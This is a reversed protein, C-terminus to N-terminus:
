KDGMVIFVLVGLLILALIAGVALGAVVTVTSPGKGKSSPQVAVDRQCRSCVTADQHILEKCHPCTKRNGKSLLAILIGFPGLLVGLIFGGCGEGKKAGIMAAVVGCLIWILIAFEM